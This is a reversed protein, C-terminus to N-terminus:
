IVMDNTKVVEFPGIWDLHSSHATTSQPRHLLVKDGVQIPDKYLPQNLKTNLKHGAEKNALAVRRHVQRLLANIQM